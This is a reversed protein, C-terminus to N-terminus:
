ANSTTSPVTPTAVWSEPLLSQQQSAPREAPAKEVPAKEEDSQTKPSSGAAKTKSKNKDREHIAKLAAEIESKAQELGHQLQVHCQSFTTLQQALGADLEEATGTLALPTTLAKIASEPIKAVEKSATVRDNVNGDSERNQPIVCVRIRGPPLLAVTITLPRNQLVPMLEKFM